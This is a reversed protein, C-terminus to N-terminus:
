QQKGDIDVLMKYNAIELLPVKNGIRYKGERVADCVKEHGCGDLSTFAVDMSQENLVRSPLEVYM